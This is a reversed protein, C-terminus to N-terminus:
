KKIKQKGLRIFYLVLIAPAFIWGAYLFTRSFGLAVVMTGTIM